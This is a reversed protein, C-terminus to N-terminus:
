TEGYWSCVPQLLKSWYTQSSLGAQMKGQVLCLIGDTSFINKLRTVLKGEIVYVVLILHSSSKLVIRNCTLTDLHYM